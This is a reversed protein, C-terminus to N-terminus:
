ILPLNSTQKQIEIVRDIRTDGAVTVKHIGHKLLLKYSEKDQVFFHTYLSLMNRYPTRIKKFFSQNSRFVASVLYVPINRLYSEHIYNYWFEYKIFIVMHPKTLELFKVANRKTDFP